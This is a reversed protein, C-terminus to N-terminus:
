TNCRFRELVEVCRREWWHIFSAVATRCSRWVTSGVSTSSVAARELGEARLVHAHADAVDSDCDILDMAMCMYVSCMEQVNNGELAMQNM